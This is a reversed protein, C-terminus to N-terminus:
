GSALCCFSPYAGDSQLAAFRRRAELQRSSEMLVDGGVCGCVDVNAMENNRGGIDIWRRKWQSWPSLSLEM